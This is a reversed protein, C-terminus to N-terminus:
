EKIETKESLGWSKLISLEEDESMAKKFKAGSQGKVRRECSAWDTHRYVHGNVNSLYSYAAKKEQKPRM